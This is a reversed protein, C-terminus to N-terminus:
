DHDETTIIPEISFIHEYGLLGTRHCCRLSDLSTLSRSMKNPVDLRKTGDEMHVFAGGEMVDVVPWVDCKERGLSFTRNIGSALASGFTFVIFAWSISRGLRYRFYSPMSRPTTMYMYLSVSFLSGIAMIMLGKGADLTNYMDDLESMLALVGGFFLFAYIRDRRKSSVVYPPEALDGIEEDTAIDEDMAGLGDFEEGGEIAPPVLDPDAVPYIFEWILWVALLLALLISYIRISLLPGGASWLVALAVTCILAFGVVWSRTAQRRRRLLWSLLKYLAFIVLLGFGRAYRTGQEFLWREARQTPTPRLEPHKDLHDALLADWRATLPASVDMDWALENTISDWRAEGVAANVLTSDMGDVPPFLHMNLEMGILDIQDRPIGQTD